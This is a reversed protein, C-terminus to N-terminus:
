RPRARAASRCRVRCGCTSTTAPRCASRTARRRGGAPRQQHRRQQDRDHQRLNIPIGNAFQMALGLITGNVIARVFGNGGDLHPRAVISGTFTHRQDLVNPGLDFDLDDPNTRGADGQVSLVSTIPANDESKGLTYAFDFQMGWVNRGTLQVTLNKYTSEGLSEVQNVTNYRPDVRTTANVATSYIHRGDALQGIPNIVNINSILPLNYGRAYSVGVSAAFRNGLQREIQVNNQWNHAM